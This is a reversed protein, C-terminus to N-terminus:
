TSILDRFERAAVSLTAFDIEGRLKMEDIMNTFREVQVSRDDLWKDVAAPVDRKRRKRMIQEALERRMRFFDDRLKGRAISQWRGQVKLDEAAVHLWYIGLKENTVAYLKAFEIVDPKYTAALDAMDLAPRTLLLASMRNSLKEAVGLEMYNRAASHHRERAATSLIGGTRTYITHMDAKLREVTSEIDLKDGFNEILWYSAHRLSRSIEFM